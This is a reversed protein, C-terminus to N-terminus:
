KAVLTFYEDSYAALGPLDVPKVASIEMKLDPALGELRLGTIAAKATMAAGLSTAESFGTLGVPSGHSLTAVLAAYDPNKRFGGEIFIETGPVRGARSLAIETQLALSLNLVAYATVPNRIFGPIAGGAKIEEYTFDHGDEVARARSGPFQGSGNVIEPLIFFRKEKIIRRYVAPDWAPINEKSSIGSALRFLASWADFELGGLFITTKVPAGTAALNFFVVKGLEDPRFGYEKQPHMHVCWTGTSDLIFDRGDRKALYPLLSANSDHIGMTVLVGADLGARKAVDPLVTGLTDWSERLGDPLLAEVGLRRAVASYTKKRFDWLYSHCGVYTAEAGAKGTLRWGWYQPYNLIYRTKPFAGPFNERLFLIGKSPNILSQFEPTGTEAQLEKPDGALQYFRAHFDKGPDHTYLVSPACPLGDEGICVLTAGHTTVAIARIPYKAAFVALNKLLWTEIAALDHVELKSGGDEPEEMLPPFVKYVADVQALDDDYIVLKKNTMGVDFVALAYEM